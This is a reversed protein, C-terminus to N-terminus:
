GIHEMTKLLYMETWNFIDVNYSDTLLKSLYWVGFVIMWVPDQQFEYQMRYLFPSLYSIADAVRIIWQHVKSVPKIPDFITLLFEATM